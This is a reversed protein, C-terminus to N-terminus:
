TTFILTTRILALALLALLGERALHYPMGEGLANGSVALAYLLATTVVAFLAFFMVSRRRQAKVSMAIVALLLAVGCLMVADHLMEGSVPLHMPGTAVTPPPLLSPAAM